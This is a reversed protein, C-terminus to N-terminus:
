KMKVIIMLKKIIVGCNTYMKKNMQDRSCKCDNTRVASELLGTTFM